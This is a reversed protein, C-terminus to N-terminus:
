SCTMAAFSRLVAAEVSQATLAQMCSPRVDCEKLYCPSCGYDTILKEGRGFLDVEQHCTPGFFAVVQKNLAIGVHMALSDSSLVVNTNEVLAFFVELSNDTGSDFVTQDALEGARSMLEAHLSAERPGGLLLLRMDGRRGLSEILASFGEVTWAKTAFVPGCGTNVGIIPKDRPIGIAALRKEASTRATNSITLNYEDNQYELEVMDYLIQQHTLTNQHYKLEDSLGLRLAHMSGENWVTVRNHDTPAYGLKRSASLKRSLALAEADKDLCILVDFRRGELALLGAPTFARVENVLPDRVIPESGSATLWTIWSQPYTRKLGTLLCKSRLADGMAGLKIILIEAGRPDYHPCEPCGDNKHCPKYGSYFRCDTKIQDLAIHAFSTM